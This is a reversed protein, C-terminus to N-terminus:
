RYMETLSSIKSMEVMICVVKNMHADRMGTRHGRFPVAPLASQQRFTLRENGLLSIHKASVFLVTDVM